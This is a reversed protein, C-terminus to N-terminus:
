FNEEIQSIPEINQFWDAKLLPKLGHRKRAEDCRKEHLGHEYSAKFNQCPTPRNNYIECSVFEGIRGKLAICKPLHKHETGKMQRQMSNSEIWYGKPVIPQPHQNKSETLLTSDEAERWYFTVRFSACCAGCLQCPHVWKNIRSM